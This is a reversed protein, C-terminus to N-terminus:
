DPTKHQAVVAWEIFCVRRTIYKKDFVTPRSTSGIPKMQIISSMAQVRANIFFSRRCAINVPPNASNMVRTPLM